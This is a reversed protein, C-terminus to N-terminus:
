YGAGGPPRGEDAEIYDFFTEIQRGSLGAEAIRQQLRANAADRWGVRTMHSNWVAFDDESRPTGRALCWALVEEDTGGALTRAAIDAHRLGLFRCCRADMMNPHTDGINTQYEPPLKGRAHLRIKDLM